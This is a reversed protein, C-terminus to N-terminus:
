EFLHSRIRGDRSPHFIDLRCGGKSLRLSHDTGNRLGNAVAFVDRNGLFLFIELSGDQSLRSLHRWLLIGTSQAPGM